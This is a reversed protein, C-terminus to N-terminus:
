ATKARATVVIEQDDRELPQGQFGGHLHLLEFGAEHLLSRIDGPYLFSLDWRSLASDILTGTEVFHASRIRTSCKHENLDNRTAESVSTFGGEAHPHDGAWRWVGAFAGHHQKMVDLSPYFVNFALLGGPRLHEHCRRLTMLQERRTESHLFARCPIQILAFDPTLEFDRMDGEVVHVLARTAPTLDELHERLIALMELDPELAWVEVGAEALPLVTRGTGAGLELVPGATKKALAAYFEVDGDISGRTFLDYFFPQYLSAM